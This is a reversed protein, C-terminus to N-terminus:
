RRAVVVHRELNHADAVATAKANSAFESSGVRCEMCWWSFSPLQQVIAPMM